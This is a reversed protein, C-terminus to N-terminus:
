ASGGGAGPRYIRSEVKKAHTPIFSYVGDIKRADISMKELQNKISGPIIKFFKVRLVTREVTNSIQEAPGTVTVVTLGCVARLNDTVITINKDRDSRLVCKAEWLTDEFVETVLKKIKEM